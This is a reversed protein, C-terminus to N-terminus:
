PKPTGWKQIAKELIRYITGTPINGMEASVQKFLMGQSFMNWIKREHQETYKSKAPM